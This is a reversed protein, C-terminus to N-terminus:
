LKFLGLSTMVFYIMISVAVYSVLSGGPGSSALVQGSALFLGTGITGGLAIMIMHRNKLNRHLDTKNPSSSIKHDEVNIESSSPAHNDISTQSIADIKPRTKGDQSDFSTSRGRSM